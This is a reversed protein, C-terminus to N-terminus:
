DITVFTMSFSVQVDHLYIVNGYVNKLTFNLTKILHRSVDIKNHPAVISDMILYGFSSSVPVKKIIPNEGRVGISNYHGLNSSHININHINLLEIFGTVFSSIGPTTSPHYHISNTHRIVDNLPKLHNLDVTVDNGLKNTWVLSHEITTAMFQFEILINFVPITESLITINGRSPDYTCVFQFDPEALQLEAQLALALSSGTYNGSPIEIALPHYWTPVGTNM